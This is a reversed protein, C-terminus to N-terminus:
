NETLGEDLALHKFTTLFICLVVNLCPNDQNGLSWLKLPILTNKCLCISTYFKYELLISIIFVFFSFWLLFILQAAFAGTCCSFSVKLFGEALGKSMTKHRSECLQSMSPWICDHRRTPGHGWWCEGETAAVTNKKKEVSWYAARLEKRCWSSVSFLFVLVVCDLYWMNPLDREPTSINRVFPRNHHVYELSPPSARNLFWPPLSAQRSSSAFLSDQDARRREKHRQTGALTVTLALWAQLSIDAWSSLSLRSVVRQQQQPQM